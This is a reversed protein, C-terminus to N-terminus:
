FRGGLVVGRGGDDLPTIGLHLDLKAFPSALHHNRTAFTTVALGAVAGGMAIGWFGGQEFVPNIVAVALPVVLAGVAGGVDILVVRGADIRPLRQAILAGLPLGLAATWFHTGALIPRDPPFRYSSVALVAGTGFMVSWFATSDVVWTQGYTPQLWRWALEGGVLGATQTAMAIATRGRDKIGYNARSATYGLFFGWVPGSNLLGAHGREIGDPTLAVAVAIGAAAGLTGLGLGLMPKDDGDFPVDALSWIELGLGLGHLAQGLALQSRGRGRQTQHAQESIRREANPDRVPEAASEAPEAEDPKPPQILQPAEATPVVEEPNEEEATPAATETPPKGVLDQAAALSPLCCLLMALLARNM